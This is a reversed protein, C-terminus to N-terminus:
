KRFESACAAICRSLERQTTANIRCLAVCSEYTPPVDKIEPGAMAPAASAPVCLAAMAVLRLWM